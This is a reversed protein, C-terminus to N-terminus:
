LVYVYRENLAARSTFGAIKIIIMVCVSKENLTTTSTLGAIKIIIM